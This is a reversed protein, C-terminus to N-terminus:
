KRYTTREIIMDQWQKDLTVFRANWGAVRVSLTKFREPHRRAEILKMNDIVDPQLFFGGKKIFGDILNKIATIGNDGKVTDPDLKVELASGSVQKEHNIKCYSSIAATAGEFDTNPTPSANNSLIEGRKRGFPAASRLPAWEIQRGFTSIGPPFLISCGDFKIKNVIEAFDEILRVTYLDAEDNDNGYYVLRNTAYQRIIENNQWNERLNQALEEFTIIKDKFVLKDIAYLSNGTDPAGGIHPSIVTYVPGGNFYNKGKEICNREFLSVASCPYDTAPHWEAGDKRIANLLINETKVKLASLYDDYLKGFSEYRVNEEGNLKLVDNLLIQLSDFPVYTFCTQGPIQVEWCGDNAFGRAESKEYGFKELARIILEENYVAVTGGGHRIVKATKEKLRDDTASNIRVTIPFDGIPLEEVIDLVLYTVENTVEVGNKDIGGLVINQYHQGDGSGSPTDERIWECGKIFMGALLERAENLTILGSNLDKKLFPGLLEDIRGIGPWNGCLRLFAFTFWLSQVAERFCTAKKFPVNQLFKYNESGLKKLEALYRDHFIHMSEVVNQMGTLQVREADDASKLRSLIRGNLYDIGKYLVTHFDVTLHSVGWFVPENGFFAPVVHLIAKGLTAAGSVTEGECIRLPAEEAIRRIMLNYKRQDSLERWNDIDDMHVCGYRMAQTGYKGHLSEYAFQRTSEKLRVPRKNECASYFEM